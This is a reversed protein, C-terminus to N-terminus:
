ATRYFGPATLSAIIDSGDPTVAFEHKSIPIISSDTGSTTDNDYGVVLAVWAGGVAAVSSWTLNPFTLDSRDNTDDPVIASLEVDTLTKRAYGSNTAETSGGALIAAFDDFDILTADAAQTKLAMVVIGSAAPDNNEVRYFFESARGKSANFPIDAM